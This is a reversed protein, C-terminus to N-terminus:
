EEFDRFLDDTADPGDEATDDCSALENDAFVANTLEDLTEKAWAVASESQLEFVAVVKNFLKKYDYVGDNATWSSKQLMTRVQCLAYALMRPTVKYIRHARAACQPPIGSDTGIGRIATKPGTWVHRLCRIVLYGLFLGDHRRDITWQMPDKFFCSPWDLNTFRRAGSAFEQLIKLPEEDLDDAVDEDSFTLNPFKLRLEPSLLFARTVPHKHGRGSKSEETKSMAPVLKGNPHSPPLLYEVSFKLQNTDSERVAQAAEAMKKVLLDWTKGQYLFLYKLVVELEHKPNFAVVHEFWVAFNAVYREHIQKDKPREPVLAALTAPSWKATAGHLTVEPLKDFPHGARNYYQGSNVLLKFATQEPDYKSSGTRRKKRPRRDDEDNNDNGDNASNRLPTGTPGLISLDLGKRIDNVVDQQLPSLAIFAEAPTIPM